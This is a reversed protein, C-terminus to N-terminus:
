RRARGGAAAKRPAPAPDDEEQAQARGGRNTGRAPATAEAAEVARIEARDEGQWKGMVVRLKARRGMWEDPNIQSTNANLGLAELLKRLNFLARRDRGKPVIQRNWYLVAGDEFQDAIDPPLEEPPIVFKIAFYQNGKGSTPMQVDQVEGMYQGAPIEPPKEVDVLNEGVDIIGLPEDAAHLMAATGLFRNRGIYM